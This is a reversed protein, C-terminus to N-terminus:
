SYSGNITYTCNYISGGDKTGNTLAFTMLKSSLSGMNNQVVTFRKGSIPINESLVVAGTTYTRVTNLVIDDTSNIIDITVTLTKNTTGTPAGFRYYATATSPIYNGYGLHASTITALSMSNWGSTAADYFESPYISYTAMGGLATSFSYGKTTLGDDIDYLPNGTSDLEQFIAKITNMGGMEQRIYLPFLPAYCSSSSLNELPTGNKYENSFTSIRSDCMKAYEPEYEVGGWSAFSEGLWYDYAHSSGQGYKHMIGHIYEHALIGWYAKPYGQYPSQNNYIPLATLDYHVKMFSNGMTWPVTEALVDSASLTRTLYILYCSYDQSTPNIFGSFGSYSSSTCFKQYISEMHTAVSSAVSSSMPNTGGAEYYVRFRGGSSNVYAASIYTPVSTLSAYASRLIPTIEAEDLSSYYDVFKGITMTSCEDLSQGNVVAEAILEYKQHESIIGETALLDIKGNLNVNQLPDSKNLEFTKTGVHVTIQSDLKNLNQLASVSLSSPLTTNQDTTHNAYIQQGDASYLAIGSDNQTATYAAYDVIKLEINDMSVSDSYFFTQTTVGTDVPLTSLDVSISFYNSPAIFTLKGDTDSYKTTHYTEEFFQYGHDSQQVLEATYVNVGINSTRITENEPEFSFQIFRIPQIEIFGSAAVPMILMMTTFLWIFIKTKGKM